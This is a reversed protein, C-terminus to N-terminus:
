SVKELWEAAVECLTLRGLMDLLVKVRGQKSLNRDFIADMDKLPGAKIRVVDGASFKNSDFYGSQELQPLKDKIRMVIEDPVWAVEGGFKVIRRVGPTWSVASYLGSTPDVRAFLYCPFFPTVEKRRRRVVYKHVTPLYVEVGRATLLGSVQMEMYPKTYLTVWRQM